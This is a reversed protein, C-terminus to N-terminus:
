TILLIEQRTKTISIFYPMKDKVNSLVRSYVFNQEKDNAIRQRAKIEVDLIFVATAVEEM